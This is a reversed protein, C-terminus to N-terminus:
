KVDTDEIEKEGKSIDKLEGKYNCIKEGYLIIRKTINLGDQIGEERKRISFVPHVKNKDLKEYLLAERMGCM